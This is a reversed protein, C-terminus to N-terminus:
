PRVGNAGGNSRAKKDSLYALVYDFAGGPRDEQVGGYRLWEYLWSKVNKGDADIGSLVEESGAKFGLNNILYNNLSFGNVVNQAIHKNIAGHTEEQLSFSQSSCMLIVILTLVFSLAKKRM